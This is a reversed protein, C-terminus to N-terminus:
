APMGHHRQAPYGDIDLWALEHSDNAQTIAELYAPHIGSANDSAFLRQPPTPMSVKEITTTM